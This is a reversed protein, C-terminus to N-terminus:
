QSFCFESFSRIMNSGTMLAFEVSIQLNTGARAITGNSECWNTNRCENFKKENHPLTAWVSKEQSIDVNEDFVSKIIYFKAKRLLPNLLGLKRLKLLSM